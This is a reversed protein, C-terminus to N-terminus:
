TAPESEVVVEPVTGGDPAAPDVPTTPSAGLANLRDVETRIDAAAATAEALTEAASADDAQASALATELAAVKPLLRQAVGDVAGKLATVNETLESMRTELTDLRTLTLDLKRLAEVLLQQPTADSVDVTITTM